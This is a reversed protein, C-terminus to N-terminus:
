QLINLTVFCVLRLDNFDELETAMQTRRSDSLRQSDKDFKLFCVNIKNIILIQQVFICCSIKANSYFWHSFMKCECVLSTSHAWTYTLNALAKVKTLINWKVSSLLTNTKELDTRSKWASNLLGLISSFVFDENIEPWRSAALNNSILRGLGWTQSTTSGWVGGCM